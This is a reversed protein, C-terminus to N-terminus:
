IYLSLKYKSSLPRAALTNNTWCGLFCPSHHLWFGLTNSTIMRGAGTRDNNGNYCPFEHRMAIASTHDHDDQEHFDVTWKWLRQIYVYMCVCIYIYIYHRSNYWVLPMFQSTPTLAHTDLQEIWKNTQTHNWIHQQLYSLKPKSNLKATRCMSGRKALSHRWLSIHM